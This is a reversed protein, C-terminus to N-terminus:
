RDSAETQRRLCVRGTEQFHNIEYNKDGKLQEPVSGCGEASLRHGFREAIMCHLQVDGSDPDKLEIAEVRVRRRELEGAIFCHAFATTPKTFGALSVELDIRRMSHRMLHFAQDILEVTNWYRLATEELTDRNVIIGAEELSPDNLYEQELTKRDREELQLYKERREEEDAPVEGEASAADLSIMSASYQVAAKIEETSRVGEICIGYGDRSGCRYVSWAAADAADEFREEATKCTLPNQRVLVPRVGEEAAAKLLAKIGEQPPETLCVVQSCDGLAAPATYPFERNLLKRNARNMPCVRIGSAGGKQTGEFRFGKSGDAILYAEGDLEACIVRLGEVSSYTQRQISIPTGMLITEIKEIYREM